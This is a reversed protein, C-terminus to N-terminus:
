DALVIPLQYVKGNRRMEILNVPNKGGATSFYDGSANYLMEFGITEVKQKGKPISPVHCVYNQNVWIEINNWDEDSANLIQLRTLMLDVEAVGNATGVHPLSAPYPFRKAADAAFQTSTKNLAPDSNPILGPRGECGALLGCTIVGLCCVVLRPLTDM